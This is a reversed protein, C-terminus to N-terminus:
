RLILSYGCIDSLAILISRREGAVYRHAVLNENYLEVLLVYWLNCAFASTLISNNNKIWGFMFSINMYIYFLTVRRMVKM